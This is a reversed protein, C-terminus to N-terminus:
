TGIGTKEQGKLGLKTCLELVEGENHVAEDVLTQLEEHSLSAKVEEIDEVRVDLGHAKNVRYLGEEQLGM